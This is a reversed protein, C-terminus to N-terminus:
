LEVSNTYPIHESLLDRKGKIIKEVAWNKVMITIVAGAILANSLSQSNAWGYKEFAINVCFILTLNAILLCLIDSFMLLPIFYETLKVRKLIRYDARYCIAVFFIIYMFTEKGTNIDDAYKIKSM